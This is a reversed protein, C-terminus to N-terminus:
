STLTSLTTSTPLTQPRRTPRHPRRKVVIGDDTMRTLYQSQLTSGKRSDVRGLVRMNIEHEKSHRRADKAESDTQHVAILTRTVDVISVNQQLALIVLFNDYGVCMCVYMCVYMCVHTTFLHSWSSRCLKNPVSCIETFPVLNKWKEMRGADGGMGKPTPQV